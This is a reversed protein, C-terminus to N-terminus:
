FAGCIIDSFSVFMLCFTILIGVNYMDMYVLSGSM